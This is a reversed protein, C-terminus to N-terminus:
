EHDHERGEASEDSHQGLHGRMMLLHCGLILVIFVGLTVGESIGFHPLIFILLMPLGCGILMHVLHKM